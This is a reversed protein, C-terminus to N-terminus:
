RSGHLQAETLCSPAIGYSYSQYSRTVFCVVSVEEFQTKITYLREGGPNPLNLSTTQSPTTTKDMQGAMAAGGLFAACLAVVAVTAILLHKLRFTVTM